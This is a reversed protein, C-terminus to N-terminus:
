RSSGRGEGTGQRAQWEAYLRQFRSAEEEPAFLIAQRFAAAIKRAPMDLEILLQARQACLEAAKLATAGPEDGMLLSLAEELLEAAEWLLQERDSSKQPGPRALPQVASRLRQRPRQVGRIGVAVAM